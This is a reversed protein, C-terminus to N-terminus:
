LLHPAAVTSNATSSFNVVTNNCGGSPPTFNFTGTCKRFSLTVISFIFRIKSNM